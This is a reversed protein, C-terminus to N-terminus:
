IFSRFGYKRVLRGLLATPRGSKKVVGAKGGKRVKGRGKAGKRVRARKPRPSEEVPYEDGEADAQGDDGEQQSEAGVEDTTQPTEGAEVQDAEDQLGLKGVELTCWERQMRLAMDLFLLFCIYLVQLTLKRLEPVRIAVPTCWQKLWKENAAVIM